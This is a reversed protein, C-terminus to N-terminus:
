WCHKAHYLIMAMIRDFVKNTHCYYGPVTNDFFSAIIRGAFNPMGLIMTM